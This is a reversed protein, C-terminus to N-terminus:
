LGSLLKRTLELLATRGEQTKLIEKMANIIKNGATRYWVGKPYLDIDNKTKIIAKDIVDKNERSINEQNELIDIRKQLENLKEKLADAEQKTFYSDPNSIGAEISEQLSKTIEDIEIHNSNRSNILETKINSLWTSISYIAVSLDPHTKQEINKYDGPSISCVIKDETEVSRNANLSQRFPSPSVENINFHFTPKATFIIKALTSGKDPFEITFDERCFDNSNLNHIILSKVTDKLISM